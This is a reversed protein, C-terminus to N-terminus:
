DWIKDMCSRITDSELIHASTLSDEDAKEAVAAMMDMHAEYLRLARRICRIEDSSLEFHMSVGDGEHPRNDQM